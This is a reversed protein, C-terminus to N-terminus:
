PASEAEPAVQEEDRRDRPLGFSVLLGITVFGAAVAATVQAASTYASKAEQAVQSMGPRQEIEVIAQGATREVQDVLQAQQDASLSGDKELDASFIGALSGFLVTGLIAAGLASGVQRFTSTM